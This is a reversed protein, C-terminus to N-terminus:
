RRLDAVSLTTVSLPPLQVTLPVGAATASAGPLTGSERRIESPAGRSFRAVEVQKGWKLGPVLPLETGTNADLSDARLIDTKAPGTSRVGKVVIHAEVAKDESKNVLIVQMKGGDVTAVADVFPSREQSSVVGIAKSSFTPSTVDTQVLNRGLNHRYQSFVLYPATAQWGEKRRGLWGMFGHDTLKFFNAMEVRPNRLFVNLTSAVYLASGMTKVHDVWPSDPQVHFFPGWETVAIGIPKGPTEYKSLLASLSQLNQEVQAPAALMSRYVTLPDTKDSVGIVVPAYANHVSLFDIQGAAQKLITETWRDDDIFHYTGQNLGGIAGIRISPDVAKMASAYSKYIGAYKDAKMFAGSLDGKMYLENGVEWLRVKPGQVQNMTRVWDAAEAATGTGANVTLLLEAGAAKAVAAVEETGFSHRSKPGNPHHETTPRKDQPGMGDRWHYTDSFVGGPFRLVTPGLEKVLRVGEPDLSNASASWLGQGDFIWEVNTGYITAPITRVTRAADISIDVKMAAATTIPAVTPAVAAGKAAPAAAGEPEMSVGDFWAKGSTGAVIAYVILNDASDPVALVQQQPLLAGGSAGQKLQVFGLDGKKGLAHVGVIATAGGEAGLKAQVVIRKGRYAAADLLQGVGLPKDGGNRSNPALQLVRQGGVDAMRAEGKDKVAADLNWGAPLSGATQDFSGNVLAASGVALSSLPLALLLSAALALVRWSKKPTM